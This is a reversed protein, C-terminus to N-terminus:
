KMREIMKAISLMKSEQGKACMIQMGIPINEFKGVPISIACIGALNAPITCSDCVYDEEPTMKAGDGIKWPLIPVTPLIICDVKELVSEIEEKMATVIPIVAGDCENLEISIKKQEAADFSIKCTRALADTILDGGVPALVSFRAVNKEYIIASAHTRGLDVVMVPKDEKVSVARVLASSEPEAFVPIAGAERIVNCYSEVLARPFARIVVDYHGGDQGVLIYDFLVEASLLPIHEEIQSQLAAGIDGQNVQSAELKLSRLFGREDPLTLAVYSINKKSFEKKLIQVLAEKNKIEGNQIIGKELMGESYDLLQAIEDTNIIRILKYSSDSIDLAYVPLQLWQPIRM